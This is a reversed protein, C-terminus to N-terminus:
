HARPYGQLTQQSSFLTRTLSTKRRFYSSIVAVSPTFMLGLGLGTCLSQAFFIEWYRSALSTMFSGLVALLSRVFVAHRGYAANSLRGFITCLVFSLLVQLSGVWSVQAKPQHLTEM